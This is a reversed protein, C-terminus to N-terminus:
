VVGPASTRPLRLVVTTAGPESSDLEVDGGQAMAFLRASYTGLGTGNFKGSTVFKEFFRERIEAPVAGLNRISVEHGAAQRLAITIRGGTPSAEIANAMLNSLLPYCLREEAQVGFTSSEAAPGGELLFEVALQKREIADRMEQAINRAVALLDFPYPKYRFHGREIKMIDLAMEVQLLMNRGSLEIYSLYEIQEPTLNSGSMIIRPLNIIGNLPTKLDHRIINDIDDRLLELNKRDTIEQVSGTLVRAGDTDMRKGMFRIWRLSTGKQALRLEVDFSEGLEDARRIVGTYLERDEPAVLEPNQDFSEVEGKALGLVSFMEDTWKAERTDLNITYGGIRGIAQTHALLEQSERLALEARRRETVDRIVVMSGLFAMNQWLGCSSLEFLRPDPGPGDGGKPILRVALNRTSRPIQRRENILGPPAKRGKKLGAHRPLVLERDHDKVDEPHFLQKLHMGRLEEPDYGLLERSANNAELVFGRADLMWILDPSTQVMTRFKEESQRLAERVQEYDTVDYSISCVRDPRGSEDCLPFKAALYHRSVGRITVPRRFSLAKGEALVQQDEQRIRRAEEPSFLEELRKGVLGAGLAHVEQHMRNALVYRGEADRITILAPSNDLLAQLKEQKQALEEEVLKRYTIDAASGEYYALSGDQEHVARIDLSLWLREGDPRKFPVEFGTVTGGRLLRQQLELRAAPDAYLQSGIDDVRAMLEEPSAFGFIRALAPNAELIRGDPTTQFIGNVSHEFIKRYKREAATLRFTKSELVGAMGDFAMALEALEGSGSAGIRHSYDGESMQKTALWLKRIQGLVFANSFFWTSFLALATMAAIFSLDRVLGHNAAALVVAKPTGIRLVIGQRDHKLLPALFYLREVGDVGVSEWTDAGGALFGPLFEGADPAARGIARPDAPYRALIIGSRDLVSVAAGDALPLDRLLEDLAPLPLSMCLVGLLRGDPALIPMALPLWAPEGGGGEQYGGVIFAKKALLERFWGTGSLSRWAPGPQSSAILGGDPGNHTITGYEPHERSLAALTRACDASDHHVDHLAAIEALLGRARDFLNRGGGSYQQALQRSAALVNAKAEEYRDRAMLLAMILVPLMALLVIAFLRAHLSKLKTLPM